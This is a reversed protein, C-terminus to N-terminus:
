EVQWFRVLPLITFFRGWGHVCVARAATDTDAFPNNTHLHCVFDKINIWSGLHPFFHQLLMVLLVTLCIICEFNASPVFAGVLITESWAGSSLGPMLEVHRNYYLGGISAIDNAHNFRVSTEYLRNIQRSRTPNRKFNKLVSGADDTM